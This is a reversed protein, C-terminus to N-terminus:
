RDHDPASPLIDGLSLHKVEEVHWRKEIEYREVFLQKFDVKTVGTEKPTASAETPTYETDKEKGKDRDEDKTSGEQPLATTSDSLAEGSGEKTDTAGEEAKLSLNAFFASFTSATTSDSPSTDFWRNLYAMEWIESQKWLDNSRFLM